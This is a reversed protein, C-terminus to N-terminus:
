GAGLGIAELVRRPLSAPRQQGRVYDRVSRDAIRPLGSLAAGFYGAALGLAGPDRLLNFLARLAVYYPRYGVYWAVRGQQVRAHWRSRDREGERRHHLFPLDQITGTRWGLANAKFEDVGDWGLREEFPLVQTLCERRFARTAGWVTSGTLHRQRWRGRRLEYGSGSAIGLGPDRDFEVLLRQFFDSEFSVDADLAVVVESSTRLSAIGAHLARVIPTGRVARSTGETQLYSIWPHAHALQALVEPTADTSGNEVVIWEAPPVTQRALCEALRPLTDAEDRAATIAAYTLM